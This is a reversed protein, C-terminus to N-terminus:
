IKKLIKNFQSIALKSNLNFIRVIYSIIIILITISNFALVIRLPRLVLQGRSSAWQAFWNTSHEHSTCARSIAWYGLWSYYKLFIWCFTHHELEWCHRVSHRCHKRTHAFCGRCWPWQYSCGRYCRQRLVICSNQWWRLIMNSFLCSRFKEWNGARRRYINIPNLHRDQGSPEGNM